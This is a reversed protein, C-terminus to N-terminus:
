FDPTYSIKPRGKTASRPLFRLPQKETYDEPKGELFDVLSNVKMFEKGGLTAWVEEEGGTSKSKFRLKIALRNAPNKPDCEVCAHLHRSGDPALFCQVHFTEFDAHRPVLIAVDRFFIRGMDTGNKLIKCHFKDGNLLKKQTEYSAWDKQAPFDIRSSLIDDIQSGSEPSWYIAKLEHLILDFLLIGNDLHVLRGYPTEYVPDQGICLKM